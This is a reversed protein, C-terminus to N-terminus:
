FRATYDRTTERDSQRISIVSVSNYSPARPDILHPFHVHIVEMLASLGDCSEHYDELIRYVLLLFM